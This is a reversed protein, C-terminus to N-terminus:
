TKPRRQELRKREAEFIHLSSIHMSLRGMEADDWAEHVEHNYASKKKMEWLVWQGLRCTLYVDDRFHRFFDCSRIHYFVNLKGARMLFHYYLSCPVREGHVAGTDEPFWVPLVAQRTYPSRALLDVVDNLDGYKYRVGYNNGDSELWSGANKPWYREMYTHSFKQLEQTQHQEVNGRYWPWNKYQEGPNLPEGSVRELFHDEAWPLNPKIAERLESVTGPIPANFYVDQLELTPREDKISQWEGVDVVEGEERLFAQLTGPVFQLAGFKM